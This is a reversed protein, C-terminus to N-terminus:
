RKAEKHRKLDLVELVKRAWIRDQEKV